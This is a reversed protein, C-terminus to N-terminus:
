NIAQLLDQERKYADQGFAIPSAATHEARNALATLRGPTRVKWSFVKARRWSVRRQTMIRLLEILVIDLGSQLNERSSKSSWFAEALLNNQSALFFFLNLSRVSRRLSMQEFVSCFTRSIEMQTTCKKSSIKAKNVWFVTLSKVSLSAFQMPRSTEFSSVKQRVSALIWFESKMFFETAPRKKRRSKTSNWESAAQQKWLVQHKVQHELIWSRAELRGSLNTSLFM